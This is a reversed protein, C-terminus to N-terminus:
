RCPGQPRALYLMMKPLSLCDHEMTMMSKLKNDVMIAWSEM